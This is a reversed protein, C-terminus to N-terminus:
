RWGRRCRPPFPRDARGSSTTKERWPAPRAARHWPATSPRRGRVSSNRSVHWAYVEKGPAFFLAFLALEREGHSQADRREGRAHHGEGDVQHEAGHDVGLLPAVLLQAALDLLEVLLDLFDVVQLAGLLAEDRAHLDDLLQLAGPRLDHV